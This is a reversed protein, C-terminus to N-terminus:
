LPEWKLKRHEARTGVSTGCTPCKGNRMLLERDLAFRFITSLDIGLKTAEELKAPDIRVSTAKMRSPSPTKKKKVLHRQM